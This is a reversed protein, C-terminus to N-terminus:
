VNSKSGEKTRPVALPNVSINILHEKQTAQIRPGVLKGLLSGGILGGGVATLLKGFFVRRPPRPVSKENSKQSMPNNMRDM